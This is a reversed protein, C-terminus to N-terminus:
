RRTSQPQASDPQSLRLDILEARYSLGYAVKGHLTTALTVEPVCPDFFREGAGGGRWWFDGDVQPIVSMLVPATQFCFHDLDGFAMSSRGSDVGPERM